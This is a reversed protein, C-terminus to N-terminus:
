ARTARPPETDPRRHIGEPLVRPPAGPEAARLRPANAITWAAPLAAQCAMVCAACCLAARHDHSPAHAGGPRAAKASPTLAALTAGAEDDTADHDHHNAAHAFVAPAGGAHGDACAACPRALGLGLVLALVVALLRRVTSARSLRVGPNEVRAM